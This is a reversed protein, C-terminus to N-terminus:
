IHQPSVGAEKCLARSMDGIEGVVAHRLEELCGPCSISHQIRSLVDDGFTVQPNMKSVVALEQGSCLDLLSAVMTTTGIDVAIGFCRGTTDGEEFDILQHDSLVATGKFGQQRLQKPVQRLMAVDVNFPGTKEELRLLDPKADALTPASLEVYVKRIAPRVEAPGGVTSDRAIQHDGGFLSEDPVHVIMDSNVANQCALRWGQQLEVKGLARRDTDSPNPAGQAVQVRCKGCTGAEGCPTDIVLGASAAAELITTGKLVSVARGQPQFTVKYQSNSM